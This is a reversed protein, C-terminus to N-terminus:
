KSSTVQQKYSDRMKKLRYYFTSRPINLRNIADRRCGRHRFLEFLIEEDIYKDGIPIELEKPQPYEEDVFSSFDTGTSIKGDTLILVKLLFNKLERINGNWRRKKIFTLLTSPVEKIKKEVFLDDLLDYVISEIEDKRERLPPIEIHLVNLRHYLDDRFFGYEVEQLLHKNTAALIRVDPYIVKGGGVRRIEGYELVRLLKVQSLFPMESIEDLFLTGGEASEFLGARSFKAGTYAGEITGFFESEFLTEPIAGCNVPIFAHNKRQSSYHIARALLEKGSGSEASILLPAKEKSFLLSKYFLSLMKESSGSLKHFKAYKLTSSIKIGEFVGFKEGNIKLIAPPLIQAERTIIKKEDVYVENFEEKKIKLISNENYFDMKNFLSIGSNEGKLKEEVFIKKLKNGLFSVIIFIKKKEM